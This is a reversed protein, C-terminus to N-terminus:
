AMAISFKTQGCLPHTNITYLDHAMKLRIIGKEGWAQGWSNRVLWYNHGVYGYLHVAHDSPANCKPNGTVPYIGGAYSAVASSSIGVTFSRTLILAKKLYYPQNNRNIYVKLPQNMGNILLNKRGYINICRKTTPQHLIRVGFKLVTFLAWNSAGGTCSGQSSCYVMQDTEVEIAGSLRDQIQHKAAWAWCDGCKQQGVPRQFTAIYDTPVTATPTLDLVPLKTLLPSYETDRITSYGPALPATVILETLGRQIHDSYTKQNSMAHEPKNLYDNWTIATAALGMYYQHYTSPNYVLGLNRGADQGKLSRGKPESVENQQVQVPVQNPALKQQKPDSLREEDFIATGYTAKFESDNMDSFLNLIFTASPHAKNLNRVEVRKKQFLRLRYDFESPTRYTKGYKIMWKKFLVNTSPKVGKYMINTSDSFNNFTAIALIAAILTTLIINRM